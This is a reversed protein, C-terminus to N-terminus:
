GAQLAPRYRRQAERRAQQQLALAEASQPNASGQQLASVDLGDFHGIARELREVAIQIQVPDMGPGWQGVQPQRAGETSALHLLAGPATPVESRVGIESSIVQAGQVTVDLGWRQPYASHFLCRQLFTYAVAVDLAGEVIEAHSLPAFAETGLAAHYLVRPIFPRGKRAGQSWRWPYTEGQSVVVPKGPEVPQLLHIPEEGRLDYVEWWWAEDRWHLESWYLLQGADAPDLQALLYDPEVWRLYPRGSPGIEIAQAMERCGILLRQFEPARAWLQLEQLLSTGGPPPLLFGLLEGETSHRM